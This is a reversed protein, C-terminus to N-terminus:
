MLMSSVFTILLNCLNVMLQIKNNNQGSNCLRFAESNKFYSEEDTSDAYYVEEGGHLSSDESTRRGVTFPAEDPPLVEKM